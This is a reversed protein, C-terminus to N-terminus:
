FSRTQAVQGTGKRARVLEGDEWWSMRKILSRLSALSRYLDNRVHTVARGQLDAIESAAWGEFYTLELVQRQRPKLQALLQECYRAHDPNFAQGQEKAGELDDRLHIRQASLSRLRHLSRHYAYQLLWVKFTGRRPDFNTAREFINMYVVQVVEEAEWQDRLIRVAVSFVLRHYRDYLVALANHEGGILCALLEADSLNNLEEWRLLSEKPPSDSMCPLYRKGLM